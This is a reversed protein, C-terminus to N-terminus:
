TCTWSPSSSSSSSFHNWIQESPLFLLHTIKSAKRKIFRWLITQNVRWEGVTKEEKKRKWMSIFTWEFRLNRDQGRMGKICQTHKNNYPGSCRTYVTIILKYNILFSNMKIVNVKGQVTKCLNQESSLIAWIKCIFLLPKLMFSFTFPPYPSNYLSNNIIHGMNM